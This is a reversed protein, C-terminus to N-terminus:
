AAFARKAAGGSKPPQDPASAISDDKGAAQTPACQLNATDLKSAAQAAALFDQTSMQQLQQQQGQQGQQGQQARLLQACLLDMQRQIELQLYKAQQDQPEQEEEQKAQQQQPVPLIESEALAQETAQEQVPQPESQEPIQQASEQQMTPLTVPSDPAIPVHIGSAALQQQLILQQQQLLIQQQALLQAKVVPSINSNNMSALFASMDALGIGNDAPSHSNTNTQENTSPSSDQQDSSKAKSGDASLSSTNSMMVVQALVQGQDLAQGQTTAALNQQHQLQLQLQMQAQPDMQQQLQQQLLAQQQAQEARVQMQAQSMSGIDGAMGLATNWGMGGFNGPLGALGSLNRSFQAKEGRCFMRRALKPNDRQFLKHYFAGTDPGSSLRVFDWRSLKRTFSTYKIKKNKYYPPLIENLFRDRNHIRFSCGHPLWSVIDANAPDSLIDMLQMYIVNVIPIVYLLFLFLAFPTLFHIRIFHALFCVYM